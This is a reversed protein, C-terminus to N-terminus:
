RAGRKRPAHKDLVAEISVPALKQEPDRAPTFRESLFRELEVEPVFVRGSVRVIGLEGRAILRRGSRPCLPIKGPFVKEFPFLRQDALATM